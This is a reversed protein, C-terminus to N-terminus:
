VAVESGAARARELWPGAELAGFVEAAERRLVTADDHDDLLEAFQVRARALHFPAMLERFLDISRRFWMTASETDGRIEALLARARGAEADLLPLLQVPALADVRQLLEEIAAPEGAAVACDVAEAFEVPTDSLGRDITELSAEVADPLAAKPDGSERVIVARSFRAINAGTAWGADRELIGLAGEM